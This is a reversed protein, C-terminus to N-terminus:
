SRSVVHLHGHGIDAPRELEHPVRHPLAGRPVLRVRDVAAGDRRHGPEAHPEVEAGSRSGGVGRTPLACAVAAVYRPRVVSEFSLTMVLVGVGGTTGSGSSSPSSVVSSPSS